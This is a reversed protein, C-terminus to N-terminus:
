RQDERVFKAIAAALWTPQDESTISYADETVVVCANRLAEAYRHANAIPFVKDEQSWAFLVSKDFTQILADCARHIQETDASSMVKAYDRLIDDNVTPPLVYSDFVLEDLPHKILSGYASPALRASPDELIELGARLVNLNRALIPLTAFLPPPFTDYRTECSNLILRAIREPRQSISVQSYAGGSDNGVLTVDQLQLAAIIDGILQGCGQPSLDAHQAMPRRHAGFPLDLSYCTFEGALKAVVKRWVNANVGWGHAFVIAPGSGRRYYEVPGQGLELHGVVGLLESRWLHTQATPCQLDHM